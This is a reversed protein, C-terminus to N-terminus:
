VCLEKLCSQSSRYGIAPINIEINGLPIQLYIIHLRKNTYRTSDELAIRSNNKLVSKNAWGWSGNPSKNNYGAQLCVSINSSHSINRPTWVWKGDM